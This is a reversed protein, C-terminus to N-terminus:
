FDLFPNGTKIFPNGGKPKKEWAANHAVRM